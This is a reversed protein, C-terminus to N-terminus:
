TGVGLPRITEMRASAGPSIGRLRCFFSTAVSLFGHVHSLPTMQAEQGQYCAQQTQAKMPPV